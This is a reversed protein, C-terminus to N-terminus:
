CSSRHLHPILLTMEGNEKEGKRGERKRGEREGREKKGEEKEGKGGMEKKKERGKVRGERRSGEVEESM